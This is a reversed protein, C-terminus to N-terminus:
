MGWEGGDLEGHGGMGPSLCKDLSQFCGAAAAGLVIETELLRASCFCKWGVRRWLGEGHTLDCHVYSIAEKEM